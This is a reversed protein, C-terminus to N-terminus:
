VLSSWHSFLKITQAPQTRRQIVWEAVGLNLLWAAGMLIDRQLGLVEGSILILPLMLLAQTGAGQGLAYARIMWAEHRAVNRRLISVIGLILCTVMATGVLMRIACLLPGQLSVPISYRATMWLGTIGACLGCLALLRGARRHWGPWRRRVGRSFQFAGLVSYLTAALVHIIVPVPATVFRADEAKIAAQSLSALRAIGGLVPAASLWVLLLPVALDAMLVRSATVPSILSSHTTM